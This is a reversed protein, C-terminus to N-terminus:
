RHPRRHARPVSSFAGAVLFAKSARSALFRFGGPPPWHVLAPGACFLLGLTLPLGFLLPLGLYPPMPLTLPDRFLGPLEFLRTTSREQLTATHWRPPFEDCSDGCSLAIGDRDPPIAQAPTGKTPPSVCRPYARVFLKRSHCLRVRLAKAENEFLLQDLNDRWRGIKPLPQDEREYRFETV